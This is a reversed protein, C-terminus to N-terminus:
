KKGANSIAGVIYFTWFTIGSGIFFGEITSKAINKIFDKAEPTVTTKM